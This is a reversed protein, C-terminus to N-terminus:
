LYGIRRAEDTVAYRYSWRPNGRPKPKQLEPQSGQDQDM